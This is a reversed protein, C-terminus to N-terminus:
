ELSIYQRVYDTDDSEYYVIQDDLAYQMGLDKMAKKKIAELDVASNIRNEYDDNEAKLSNLRAELRAIEGLDNSISSTLSLYSMCSYGAVVMMLALFFVYGANITSNKRQRKITKESEVTSLSKRRFEKPAEKVALSGYAYQGRIQKRYNRSQNRTKKQNGTM